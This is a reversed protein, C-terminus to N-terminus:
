EPDEKPYLSALRLSYVRGTKRGSTAHVTYLALSGTKKPLYDKHWYVYDFYQEGNLDLNISLSNIKGVYVFNQGLLTEVERKTLPHEFAIEVDKLLGQNHFDLAYEVRMQKPLTGEFPIMSNFISFYRKDSKFRGRQSFNNSKMFKALSEKTSYGFKFPGYQPYGRKQLFEEALLRPQNSVITFFDEKEKTKSLYSVERYWSLAFGNGEYYASDVMSNSFISKESKEFIKKLPGLASLIKSKLNYKAPIRFKLTTLTGTSFFATIEKVMPGYCRAIKNTSHTLIQGGNVYSSIMLYPDSSKNVSDLPIELPNQPFCGKPLDEIRTKNLTLDWVQPGSNTMQVSFDVLKPSPRPAGESLDIGLLDELTIKRKPQAREEFGHSKAFSLWNSDTPSMNKSPTWVTVELSQGSGCLMTGERTRAMFLPQGSREDRCWFGNEAIWGKMNKCMRKIGYQFEEKSGPKACVVRHFVQHNGKDSVFVPVLNYPNILGKEAAAMFQDAHQIPDTATEIQPKEAMINVCGSLLAAFSSTILFFARTHFM